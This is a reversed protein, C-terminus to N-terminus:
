HYEELIRIKVKYKQEKPEPEPLNQSPVLTQFSRGEMIQLMLMLYMRKQPDSLNIELISEIRQIREQFTSRHIYLEQATKSSNMNNNLYVRLTEVYNTHSNVDHMLLRKLGMSMLNEMSFEGLSSLCMYDLLYDWFCHYRRTPEVTSGLDLALTAQRFRPQSALLDQFPCSIGAKLGMERLLVEMSYLMTKEDCGLKTLDILAVLYGEMEFACCGPFTTELHRLIYPSTVKSSTRNSPVIKVCYYWGELGGTYLHQRRSLEVPVGNFIDKLIDSLPTVRSEILRPNYLFIRELARALWCALANDGERHPRLAFSIKLNGMFKGNTYLNTSFHVVDRESDVVTFAKQQARNYETNLLSESILEPAYKNDKDPRLYALEEVQDLVGSYALVHFDADMIVLPNEFIPFCCDVLEQLDAGNEMVNKIQIEWNDFKDYIRQVLNFLTFLDTGEAWICASDQQNGTYSAPPRSGVCILVAGKRFSPKPPLRDTMCIYLRNEQFVKSSGDFFEPRQLCLAKIGRGYRHLRIDGDLHDCLIDANLKM